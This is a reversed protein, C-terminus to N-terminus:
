AAYALFLAGAYLGLWGYLVVRAPLWGHRTLWGDLGAFGAAFALALPGTLM